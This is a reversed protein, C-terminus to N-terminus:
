LQLLLVTIHKRVVIKGVVFAASPRVNAVRVGVVRVVRRVFEGNCFACVIALNRGSRTRGDRRGAGGPERKM